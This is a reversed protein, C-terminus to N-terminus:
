SAPPETAVSPPGTAVPRADSGVGPRRTDDPSTSALQDLLQCATASATPNAIITAVMPGHENQIKGGHLVEQRERYKDPRHAKLLFILLTDSYEREIYQQGTAPDLLPEGRDFKKRELGEHARRRAELELIEISEEIADSCQKAFAEDNDRRTYFLSRTVSALECAKSISGSKALEALVRPAWDPATRKKPTRKTKRKGM